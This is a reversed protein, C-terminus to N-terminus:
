GRVALLRQIKSGSPQQVRREESSPGDTDGVAAQFLDSSQSRSASLVFASDVLKEGAGANAEQEEGDEPSKSMQLQEEDQFLM